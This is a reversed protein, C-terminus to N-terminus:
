PREVNMLLSAVAELADLVPRRELHQRYAAEGTPDAFRARPEPLNEVAIWQWGGRGDPSVAPSWHHHMRGRVFALARVTPHKALAASLGEGRGAARDTDRLADLWMLAEALAISVTKATTDTPNAIEQQVRGVAALYGDVLWAPPM